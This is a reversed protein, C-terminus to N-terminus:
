WAFLQPEGPLRMVPIDALTLSARTIDGEVVSAMLPALEEFMAKRSQTQPPAEDDQDSAIDSDSVDDVDM